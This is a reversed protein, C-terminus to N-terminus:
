LTPDLSSRVYDCDLGKLVPFMPTPLDMSERWTPLTLAGGVTLRELSPYTATAFHSTFLPMSFDGNLCLTSLRPMHSFVRQQDFADITLSSDDECSWILSLCVLNRLSSLRLFQDRTLDHLDRFCVTLKKLSTLTSIQALISTDDVDRYLCLRLDELPGIVQLILQAASTTLTVYLHRLDQFIPRFKTKQLMTRVEESRLAKYCQLTQLGERGALHTLTKETLLVSVGPNTRIVELGPMHRFFDLLEDGDSHQGSALNLTINRLFPCKARITTFAEVSVPCSLEDVTQQLYLHLFHNYGTTYPDPISLSRLMPFELQRMSHHANMFLPVIHLHHVFNAVHQRRMVPLRLFYLTDLSSDRLTVRLVEDAWTKSVLALARLTARDDALFNCICARLESIDLPSSAM